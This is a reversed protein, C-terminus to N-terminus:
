DRERGSNRNVSSNTNSDTDGPNSLVPRRRAGDRDEDRDRDGCGALPLLVSVGLLGIGVRM